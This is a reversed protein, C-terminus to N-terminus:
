RVSDGFTSIVRGMIDDYVIMVRQGSEAQRVAQMMAVMEDGTSVNSAEYAGQVIEADDAAEVGASPPAFGGPVPVWPGADTTTFLGVKGSGVGDQVVEGNSRIKFNADTVILDSGDAKQLVGGSADVLRGESNSTFRGARAYRLGDDQRIAFYGKGSIALDFPNGSQVLKGASFDIASGVKAPVEGAGRAPELLEAFAIRRKYAPM